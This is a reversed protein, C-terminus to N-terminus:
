RQIRYQLAQENRGEGAGHPRTLAEFYLSLRRSVAVGTVSKTFDPAPSLLPEGLSAALFPARLWGPAVPTARRFYAASKFRTLHAAANRSVAVTTSIM